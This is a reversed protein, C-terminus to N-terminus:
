LNLSEFMFLTVIGSNRRRLDLETRKQDSHSHWIQTKFFAEFWEKCGGGDKKSEMEEVFAEHVFITVPEVPNTRNITDFFM